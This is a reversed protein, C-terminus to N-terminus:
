AQVDSQQGHAPTGVQGGGIPSADGSLSRCSTQLRQRVHGLDVRQPTLRGAQSSWHMGAPLAVRDAQWCKFERMRSLKSSPKGAAIPSEGAQRCSPM